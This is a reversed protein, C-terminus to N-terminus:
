QPASRTSVTIAPAPGQMRALIAPPLKGREVRIASAAAMRTAAPLGPAPADGLTVVKARTAIRTVSKRPIAPESDQAAPAAVAAAHLVTGGLGALMREFRTRYIQAFHPTRSHYAGAALIWDGLEHQLSRLFQAAYTGNVDQDFMAELSAFAHGHYHYNVQFCGVDFSRRGEALSAQAFALAQERTNFWHGKGERNIAWPWARLRGEIMRGTETLAIAHLMETPVGGRAAGVVIARDCIAATEAETAGRASTADFAFLCVALCVALVGLRPSM